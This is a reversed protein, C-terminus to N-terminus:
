EEEGGALLAAGVAATLRPDFPYAYYKGSLKEKIVRGVSDIRAVGGTLTYNEGSDFKGAQAVVINAVSECVGAVIDAPDEGANVHTIVESEGFVGCQSSIPVSSKANAVTEDIATVDVGLAGSIVELFRGSGSACKDNRMFNVIDGGANLLIATISQGGMDVVLNVDPLLYGASAGICTVDDEVFDVGELMDAGAGTGVVTEIRDRTLGADKVVSDFFGAIEMAVTGTTDTIGSAVLEDGDMIVVKSLINGIDIGATIV